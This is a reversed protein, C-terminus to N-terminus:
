VEPAPRSATTLPLLWRFFGIFFTSLAPTPHLLAQTM